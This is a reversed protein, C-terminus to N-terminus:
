TETELPEGSTEFDTCVEDGNFEIIEMEPTEYKM